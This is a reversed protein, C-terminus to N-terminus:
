GLLDNGGSKKSEGKKCSATTGGDSGAGERQSALDGIIRSLRRIGEKQKWHVKKSGGEENYGKELIIKKKRGGQM